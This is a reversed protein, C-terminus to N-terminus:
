INESRITEILNKRRIRGMSYRLIGCLLAAVALVATTIGEKPFRFATVISEGLARHFGLSIVIGLPIGILLSKGGYFLGELWILRRFERGTMGVARLMAFEPARLELNTTITNFINTIGILAVVTIFGYLFIAIVLQLNREDRDMAVYNTLSYSGAPLIDRIRAEVSYADECKVYVFVTDGARIKGLQVQADMWRDSVILKVGTSWYRGMHMPKEATQMLVEAEMGEWQGVGRLVDGEEFRAIDGEEVYLKGDEGKKELAYDALVIAKDWAEEVPVGLRWCYRAYAEEGLAIASVTGQRRGIRELYGETYPIAAEDVSFDGERVVECEEVGILNAIELARGYNEWGQLYAQIQYPQERYYLDSVRFMLEVFTSMGIWVAVSVVISVVTARYKVRARRLNRYAIKGGVGFLIGVWAPCRLEKPRIWVTDNARIASIPSLKGARAASRSASFLITVVSLVVALLIMPLSIGFVLPFGLTGVVMGGVLKVLVATAAIGCLVGLPIGVRGLFLAEYYVIKRRQGSTAGVSALRGYLKTKETLSIVFSNHICFVSTVIIVLLAISAMGYLMRMTDSSFNLGEWKLLGGNERLGKAVAQAQRVEEETCSGQMGYYRGYLEESIGLLGATVQPMKRLGAKTYSVYLDLSQASGPDELRTYASYGPATRPEVGQNPREIIGVVTYVKKGFIELREEGHLYPTEQTLRFEESVRNGLSLELTEGLRIEVRGNSGVHRGVVLESANEPMRGETLELAMAPEAAEAIAALYLYPKDPNRSGALLAYGIEGALACREIYANNEFYKLDEQEVRQFCVHFDGNRKREYAIISVRFSELICAVGTILASALLIGVITVATRKPNERLSRYCYRKLVNANGDM